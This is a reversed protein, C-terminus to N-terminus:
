RLFRDNVPSMLKQSHEAESHRKDTDDAIAYGDSHSYLRGDAEKNSEHRQKRGEETENECYSDAARIHWNRNRKEVAKAANRACDCTQCDVVQQQDSDATDDACATQKESLNHALGHVSFEAGDQEASRGCGGCFRCFLLFGGCVLRM